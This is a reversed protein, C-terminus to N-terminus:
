TASELELDQLKKEFHKRLLDTGEAKACLDLLADTLNILNNISVPMSVGESSPLFEGSYDLFYKRIHLYEVDKFEGLTVRLQLNKNDDQYIIYSLEDM